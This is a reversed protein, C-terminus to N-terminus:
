LTIIVERISCFVFVATNGQSESAIFQLKNTTERAYLLDVLSASVIWIEEITLTYGLFFPLANWLFFFSPFTLLWHRM